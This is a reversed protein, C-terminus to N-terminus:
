LTNIKNVSSQRYAKSKRDGGKARPAAPRNLLKEVKEIFYDNGLVLANNTAERIEELTIEPIRAKFLVRYYKQRKKATRGLSQYEQHPTM